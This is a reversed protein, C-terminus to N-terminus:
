AKEPVPFVPLQAKEQLMVLSTPVTVEWAEGTLMSEDIVGAQAKLEAVISVYMEEDIAPAAGGGWLESTMVYHAVSREYSPRVPVLVRAAGAQLFKTFLTDPDDMNIAKVWNARRGWFYPYYLYTLQDWEFAQEFFQIEGGQRVLKSRDIEPYRDGPNELIFNNDLSGDRLLFICNKKLEEKEIQRNIAPNKGMIVAGQASVANAVQDEYASKLKAYTEMIIQYAKARWQDLLYETRQFKITVHLTCFWGKVLYLMIPISPTTINNLDFSDGGATSDNGVWLSWYNGDAKTWCNNPCAAGRADCHIAMYGEPTDIKQSINLGRDDKTLVIDDKGDKSPYSVVVSRELFEEPPLPLDTINYKQAWDICNAPTLDEPKLKPEEPKPMTVGSVQKSAQAFIYFAAPEPVIFEFMLRKGYNVVQAQYIKDLWRYMGIVHGTGLKNDFGHTNTEEIEQTVKVTREEKVREMIREVAKSVVEKAYSTAQKTSETKSNSISFNTTANVSVTPGYSATVNLGVDLKMDTKITAAAERQLENRETTQLSKESEKTTETSVLLTDETRDLRRHKRERYESQMVNEVHAIEGMRYEKLTQKVVKLDGFGLPRVCATSPIMDTIEDLDFAESSYLKRSASRLIEKPVLPTAELLVKLTDASVATAASACINIVKLYLIVQERLSPAFGSEVTSAELLDWCLDELPLGGDIPQRVEALFADVAQQYAAAQRANRTRDIVPPKVPRQDLTRGSSDDSSFLSRLFAIIAQVFRLIRQLLSIGGGTSAAAGTSTNTGAPALGPSLAVAIAQVLDGAGINGSLSRCAAWINEMREHYIDNKLLARWTKILQRALSRSQEWGMGHIQQYFAPAKATGRDYGTHAAQQQRSFFIKKKESSTLKESPRVAMFKFISNSIAEKEMTGEQLYYQAACVNYKNKNIKAIIPQAEPLSQLSL